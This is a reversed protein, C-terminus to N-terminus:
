GINANKKGFIAKQPFNYIMSRIFYKQISAGHTMPLFLHCLQKYLLIQFFFTLFKTFCLPLISIESVTGKMFEQKWMTRKSELVMKMEREEEQGRFSLALVTKTYSYKKLKISAYTWNKLQAQRHMETM